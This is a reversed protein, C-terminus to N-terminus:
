QMRRHLEAADTSLFNSYDAALIAQEAQDVPLHDTADIPVVAYTLKGTALNLSLLDHTLQEVESNRAGRQMSLDPADIVVSISRDVTYPLDLVAVALLIPSNHVLNMANGTPTEAIDRYARTVALRLEKLGPLKAYTLIAQAVTGTNITIARIVTM